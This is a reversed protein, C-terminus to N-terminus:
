LVMICDAEVLGSRPLGGVQIASRAPYPADFYEGMIQNLATFNAMDTLYVGLRVVHSLDGGAAICVARLNCFMQHAQAPFGQQLEGNDPSIGLQGSLYVTNGAKIAQSYTGVAQPAQVTHIIEKTM